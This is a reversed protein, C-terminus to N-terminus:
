KKINQSLVFSMAHLFSILIKKNIIKVKDAILYGTGMSKITYTVFSDLVLIDRSKYNMHIFYQVEINKQKTMLAAYFLFRVIYKLM